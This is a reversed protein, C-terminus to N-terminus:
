ASAPTADTAPKPVFRVVRPHGPHPLSVTRRNAAHVVGSTAETAAKAARVPGRVISSLVAAWTELAARKEKDYRYRDYIATVTNHTVSRHNLVQAIHFRDVGAEGMYSAATRRLDHARFHFPLGGKQTQCLIAAAKKARDAICTHRHNSFVYRDDRQKYRRKLIALARSTLPVRHPDANKTSTAPITWWGGTLDVDAWRMHWVEGGRQATLLLMLFADNLTQSLRPVPRGDADQADTQHLVTWLAHLEARSLVRDRSIEQSPRCMRFAPNAAIWDREIAFSFLRSIRALLRNAMIPATQAKKEVLDRIERRTIDQVRRHRWAPLVDHEYIRRLEPWSKRREYQQTFLKFLADVTDGNTTREDQKDAAPDAGGLIRGRERIAEKRAEALGRDPYRGLTLRRLRGHHRYLLAWSKHGSPTVRIVLGPTQTDSIEYRTAQPKLADLFRVTLNQTAM